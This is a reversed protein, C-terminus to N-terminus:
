AVDTDRDHHQGDLIEDCIEVILKHPHDDLRGGAHNSNAAAKKLTACSLIMERPILDKCISFHELSRQTQAPVDVEGLSDMEKRFGNMIGEVASLSRGPQM